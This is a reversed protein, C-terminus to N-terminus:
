GGCYARFWKKFAEFDAPALDKVAEQVPDLSAPGIAVPDDAGHHVPPMSKILKDAADSWAAVTVEPALNIPTDGPLAHLIPCLTRKVEQTGIRRSTKEAEYAAEPDPAGALKLLRRIDRQSRGWVNDRCWAEWPQGARQCLDQASLLLKGADLRRADAKGIFGDAEQLKKRILDGLNGLANNAADAPPTVAPLQTPPAAKIAADIADLPPAVTPSLEAVNM